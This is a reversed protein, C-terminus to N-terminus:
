MCENLEKKGGCPKFDNYNSKYNSRAIIGETSFAEDSCYGYKYLESSNGTGQVTSSACM